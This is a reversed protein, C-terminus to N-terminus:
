HMVTYRASVRALLTDRGYDTISPELGDLRDAKDSFCSMVDKAGVALDVVEQGGFVVLPILEGKVQGRFGALRKLASAASGNDTPYHFPRGVEVQM